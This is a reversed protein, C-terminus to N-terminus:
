SYAVLVVIQAVVRAPPLAPPVILRGGISFHDQGGPDLVGNAGSDPRSATRITIAEILLAPPLDTAEFSEAPRPAISLSAPATITYSRGAEGTVAFRAAHPQPCSGGAACAERVGGSYLAGADAPMIDVVGTAESTIQGFDLDATTTVAIPQVITASAMGTASDSNGSAALAPPTAILALLPLLRRMM